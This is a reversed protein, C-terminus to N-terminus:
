AALSHLQAVVRDVLEEGAQDLLLMRRLEDRSKARPDIEESLLRTGATDAVIVRVKRDAAPEFELIMGDAEFRCSGGANEKAVSQEVLTEVTENLERNALALIKDISLSEDLIHAFMEKCGQFDAAANKLDAKIKEPTLGLIREGAASLNSNPDAEAKDDLRLAGAYYAAGHLISPPSKPNVPDPRHHHLCIPKVLADPLKWMRCLATAVDVHTCMLHKFESAYQAQPSGAQDVHDLYPQGVLHLMMPVGADLMLGVIFAEGAVRRDFREAIRFALWARFLSQTWLRKSSSETEDRVSAQSLHFGLAMAKLRDMGLLVMARPLQTVPTRQAYYASNVTRLLRATLAQDTRIVEVFDNLTSNPNSVLQIVKVAVQPLTPVSSDGLRRALSAQLDEVERASLELRPKM